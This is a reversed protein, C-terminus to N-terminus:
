LFNIPLTISQHREERRCKGATQSIRVSQVSQVSLVWLVDYFLPDPRCGFYDNDVRCCAECLLSRRGAVVVVVVVVLFRKWNM